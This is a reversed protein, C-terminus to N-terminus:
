GFTDIKHVCCSNLIYLLIIIKPELSIIICVSSLLYQISWGNWIILSKPMEYECELMWIPYTVWMAVNMNILKYLNWLLGVFWEIVYSMWCLNQRWMHTWFSKSFRDSHWRLPLRQESQDEGARETCPAFGLQCLSYCINWHSANTCDLAWSGGRTARQFGNSHSSNSRHM